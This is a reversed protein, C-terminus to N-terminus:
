RMVRIAAGDSLRQLGSTIIQDGPKLGEIIEIRDGEVFGLKVPLRKARMQPEEGESKPPLQEVVYVFREDGQFVVATAPVVIAGLRRSWIIKARIFQGDLLEGKSNDFTAKALVTQSEANVQPSIFSIRGEALPENNSNTIEVPLGLRLESLRDASVFVRLDLTNNQTLTTLVNGRSLYDGVKVPVDGIVGSFPAIVRTDQLAVELARIQAQARAVEAEAAAIEEPRTGNELRRLEQWREEVEAEAAVITEVRPGSEQLALAQQAENLRAEAEQRDERQSQKLEELRQKAAELSAAAQRNEAVVEDFRDRSIAGENLLEENRRVREASLDLRAKADAIQAEAQAIAQNRSGGSLAQLRAEAQRLRARAQAIDEPRNGARLEALRAQSQNLRARAQAIEELRPGAQLAALRAQASILNAQGQRLQIEAERSDLRAITMGQSIRDGPRVYIEIVRGDVESQISVSEKAELNGVIESSEEWTALEVPAVRVSVSRTGGGRGQGGGQPRQAAGNQSQWWYWGGGAGATLLVIWLIIGGLPSKPFKKRSPRLKGNSKAPPSNAESPDIEPLESNEAIESPLISIAPTYDASNHTDM